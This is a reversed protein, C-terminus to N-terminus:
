IILSDLRAVVVTRPDLVEVVQVPTGTPLESDDTVANYERISGNISIQVKGEGSRKAPIRLYVTGHCGVASKYLNINGSQQMSSLAKFMYMVAVVLGIGVLSALLFLLFLSNVSDYLLM